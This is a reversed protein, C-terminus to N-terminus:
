GNEGRYIKEYRNAVSPSMKLIKASESQSHELERLEVYANYRGENFRNGRGRGVSTKCQEEDSTRIFGLDMTSGENEDPEDTRIFGINTKKSANVSAVSPNPQESLNQKNKEIRNLISDKVREIFSPPEKIELGRPVPDKIAVEAKQFLTVVNLLYLIGILGLIGMINRAPIEIGVAAKLLRSTQHFVPPLTEANPNVGTMQQALEQSAISLAATANEIQTHYNVLSELTALKEKIRIADPINDTNPYQSKLSQLIQCGQQALSVMAGGGYPSNKPVCTNTMTDQWTVGGRNKSNWFNKIRSDVAATKAAFQADAQAIVQQLEGELQQKQSAADALISLEAPAHDKLSKLTQEAQQYKNKALEVVASEAIKKQEYADMAEIWLSFLSFATIVISIKLWFDAVSAEKNRGRELAIVEVRALQPRAWVMLVAWVIFIIQAFLNVGFFYWALGEAIAIFYLILNKIRQIDFSESNRNYQAQTVEAM